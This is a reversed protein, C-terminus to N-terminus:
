LLENMQQGRWCASGPLSPCFWSGIGLEAGRWAFGCKVAAHRLKGAM